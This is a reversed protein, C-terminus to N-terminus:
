TLTKGLIHYASRIALAVATLTPNCASEKPIVGTGGVYLNDFGWHKLYPDVVSTDRSDGMRTTSQFHLSAGPPEFQPLQGPLWGGVALSAQSLDDMMQHARKAEEDGVEYEFTPQPMGMVDVYKDSFYVRNDWNLETLGFWQMFVLLRQDVYEGGPTTFNIPDQHIQCHWPRKESVPIWVQPEAANPPLNIPDIEPSPPKGFSKVIDKSLVVLCSAVIQDNLYRGLAPHRIKSKWLLQPSMIPGCAVIFLEAEITVNAKKQFDQVLARTVKGQKHELQTVLHDALLTFKGKKGAPTLIPRLFDDVGVWHVYGDEEGFDGTGRREAAIPLNQVPYDGPVPYPYTDPLNKYHDTLAARVAKGRAFDFQDTRTKFFGEAITYLQDWEHAGVLKTRELTPHQRPTACTWLTSMGGVAYAGAAHGLNKAPDQDPNYFNFAYKGRARFAVKDMSELDDTKSPVSLAHLNGSVVDAFNNWNFQYARSNRLHGGPVPTIQPGADVMVVDKGGEVLLRAYTAGIPGSGIVLAHTKIDPRDM